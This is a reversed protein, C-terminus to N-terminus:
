IVCHCARLLARTLDAALDGALTDGALALLGARLLGLLGGTRRAGAGATHLLWEAEAWAGDGEALDSAVLLASLQQEALSRELAEYTLDGHAALLTKAELGACHEGDLLCRLCVHDVQEGVGAQAGDVSAAHGDHGLVDLECATEATLAELYLSLSLIPPKYYLFFDMYM